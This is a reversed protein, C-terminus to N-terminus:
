FFPSPGSDEAPKLNLSDESTSMPPEAPVMSRWLLTKAYFKNKIFQKIDSESIYPMIWGLSSDHQKEQKSREEYYKALEDFIENLQLSNMTLSSFRCQSCVELVKASFFINTKNALDFARIAFNHNNLFLGHFLDPEEKASAYLQELASLWVSLGNLDATNPRCLEKAYNLLEPGVNPYLAILSRKIKKPVSLYFEWEQSDKPQADPIECGLYEVLKKIKNLVGASLGLYEKDDDDTLILEQIFPQKIRDRFVSTVVALKDLVQSNFDGNLKLGTLIADLLGNGTMKMKEPGKNM